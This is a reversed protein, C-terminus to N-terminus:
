RLKLTALTLVALLIGVTWFRTVIKSEHLGKKQFHHHIPSMLFVRQGEGFKSKTYKFYGVQIIVSLLEIFFIGCLLPILLEKRVALALVAVIGGLALSGTDGMFVQAPFANYWLFGICAGVLAACFIVLEGSNPIYMINLYNSFIVNGSLYALIALSLAIIATTGAALGDIGDTINVGNSVATVIFTVMLVYVVWAYESLFDPLLWSYQFENNKFFPITTASSKIDSYLSIDNSNFERVVIDPHFVMTGGVLLGLAVQGIIKFKGRLGEKNKKKIKLFDDIFGISGMWIASIILLFIYINTLDAFLLTPIIIGLLIIIGGMTPTGQKEMQGSLGLDRISEGLQFAKLLNILRQGFTITILLSILVALGARFSIYQFVGVGFLDFEQDIYDFFHYLM